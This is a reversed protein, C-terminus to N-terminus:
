TELFPLPHCQRLLHGGIKVFTATQYLAPVCIEVSKGLEVLHHVFKSAGHQRHTAFVVGLVWVVAGLVADESGVWALALTPSICMWGAAEASGMVRLSLVLLCWRRGTKLQMLWPAGLFWRVSVSFYSMSNSCHRNNVQETVGYM